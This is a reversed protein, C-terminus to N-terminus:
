PVYTAWANPSEYVQISHISAEGELGPSFERYITAAINESSPNVKDFPQMENLSSHDFRELIVDLLKKLGSFDYAMGAEDLEEAELTVIVEFRHGHLRECKGRYNRLFHAADFHRRVSVQYM